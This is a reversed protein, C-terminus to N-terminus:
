KMTNVERYMLSCHQQLLLTLLLHCLHARPRSGHWGDACHSTCDSKLNRICM